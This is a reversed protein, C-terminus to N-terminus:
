LLATGEADVAHREGARVPIPLTNEAPPLPCNWARSFSCPLLTAYNFDLVVRDRGSPVRLSRGAAYSERGNTADRFHVFLDGDGAAGRTAVLRHEIGDRVFALEAVVAVAVPSPDRHHTIAVTQGASVPTVTAEVRWSPDEDFSSIDAFRSAWPSRANWIQLAYKSGDYTFIVGEGGDAFEATAPGRDPSAHLVAEGDVLEGGVRVGDAARARVSLGARGESLPSWRGPADRVVQDPETVFDGWVFSAPGRRSAADRRRRDRFDVLAALETERTAATSMAHRYSLTEAATAPRTVIPLPPTM